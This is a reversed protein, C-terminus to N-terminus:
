DVERNLWQSFSSGSYEPEAWGELYEYVAPDTESADFYLFHYGQHMFFVFHQPLLQFQSGSEVLCEQAWEKLKFLVSYHCDSGILRSPPSRGAALLWNRYSAPLAVGAFTELSEVESETCAQSLRM